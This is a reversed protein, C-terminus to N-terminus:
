KVVAIKLTIQGQKSNIKLFYIGPKFDALPFETEVGDNRKLVNGSVDVLYSEYVTLGPPLTVHVKDKAPNPYVRIAVSEGDALSTIIDITITAQVSVFGDTVTATLERGSGLGNIKTADAISLEGNTGNLGFAGDTNGATLAYELLDDDEDTANLKGIVQGNQPKSLMQFVVNEFVPAHNAPNIVSLTWNYPDQFPPAISWRIFVSQGLELNELLLEANYHSWDEPNDNSAILNGDCADYVEVYTNVDADNVDISSLHLHGAFPMTYHYWTPGGDSHYEGPAAEIANQCDDGPELDMLELEWDGSLKEGLTGESWFILVQEGAALGTIVVQDDGIGYTTLRDCDSTVGVSKYEAPSSTLRTIVLKKNDEPMTYSYWFYNSIYAPTTNTGEHAEVPFSCVLGPDPEGVDLRWDYTYQESPVGNAWRILVTQGETLENIYLFSQVDGGWDDNSAILNGNCADYVEVNTSLDTFGLSSLSLPGTQPMTFSFWAPLPRMANNIGEVATLPDECNDGQRPGDTTIEWTFPEFSYTGAWKILLTQGAEVNEILAESQFYLIFDEESFIDHSEALLNGDCADYVYLETDNFTFARSSIKVNGATEPTYSFWQTAYETQNLGYTAPLPDSCLDGQKLPIEELKWDVPPFPYGLTWYISIQQGQSLGSVFATHQNVFLIEGECGDLLGVWPIVNSGTGQYSVKLSGAQSMVYDYWVPTSESLNNGQVARIPNTCLDGTKINEIRLQWTFDANYTAVDWIIIIETGAPLNFARAQGQDEDVWSFSECNDTVYMAMDIPKNAFATIKKGSSPVTFKAWFLNGYHDHDPRYDVTNTGIVAQKATTCNDGPLPDVEEISWDFGEYSWKESWLIYIQEGAPLGFLVLEAQAYGPLNDNDDTIPGDCARKIILHTDVESFGVSTIKLNTHKTTTYTFWQPAGDTHNMGAQAVKAASCIEGNEYPSAEFNWAFSEVSLEGDWLIKITEGAELGVSLDINAGEAQTLPLENCNKFMVVRTTGQILDAKVTVEGDFPITYSYWYEFPAANPIVNTGSTANVANSCSEGSQLTEANLSWSFDGGEADFAVYIKEDADVGYITTASNSSKVLVLQDCNNKYLRFQKGNGNIHIKQQDGAPTFQYWYTNLTTAPAINEGEVANAALECAAGTEQASTSLTWAFPEVMWENEWLIKITEGAQLSVTLESQTTGFANDSVNMPLTHCERYLSLRTDDESVGVSSIRVVENSTATYQFWARPKDSVNNGVTAGQALQCSLLSNRRPSVDLVTRMRFKQDNTFINMCADTSYDMYNEIMDAGEEPCSDRFDCSTNPGDANPTDACFDDVSCDGDGWIHRLGLWHGVEHTTTRGKDFPSVVNGTRGFYQYGIVVGDTSASQDEPLGDLGSLSPFQAYGLYGSFSGGFTVVWINFYREPDWQTNPKLEFETREYDYYASYGFVRDVGPEALVKGQPDVLVPVFEINIDAGSPHDNFGGGIRRFDENLVEFQSMIQERTINSGVGVPEGHHVIHVITPIKYVTESTATLRSSVLRSSLKKEFSETSLRLPNRESLMRESEVSFCNRYPPVSDSLAKQVLAVAKYSTSRKAYDKFKEKQSGQKLFAAKAVSKSNLQEKQYILKGGSQSPSQAYLSTSITCVIFLLFIRYLHKM